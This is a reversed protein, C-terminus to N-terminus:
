KYPGYKMCRYLCLSKAINLGLMFGILAVIVKASSEQQLFAINLYYFKVILLIFLVMFVRLTGPIYFRSTNKIAKIGQLQFQLYGFLLGPTIAVLFLLIKHGNLKMVIPLLILLVCMLIIPRIIFHKMSIQRPKTAHFAAFALWIFLVYIWWHTEALAGWFSYSM